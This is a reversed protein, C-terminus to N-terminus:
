TISMFMYKISMHSIDRTLKWQFSFYVSYDQPMVHVGMVHEECFFTWASNYISPIMLKGILIRIVM